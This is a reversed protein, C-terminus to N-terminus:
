FALAAVGIAIAGLTSALSAAAGKGEAVISVDLVKRSTKKTSTGNDVKYYAGIVGSYTQGKKMLASSTADYTKKLSGSAVKGSFSATGWKYGYDSTDEDEKTLAATGIKEYEFKCDKTWDASDSFWSKASSNATPTPLVTAMPAHYVM